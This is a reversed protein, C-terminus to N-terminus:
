RAFGFPPFLLLVVIYYNTATNNRLLANKKERLFSTERRFTTAKSINQIYIYLSLTFANQIVIHYINYRTLVFFLPSFVM